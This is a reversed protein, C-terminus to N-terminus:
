KKEIALIETLQLLGHIQDSFFWREVADQGFSDLPPDYLDALEVLSKDFDLLV